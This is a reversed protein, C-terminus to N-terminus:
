PASSDNTVPVNAPTAGTALTSPRVMPEPSRPGAVSRSCDRYRSRTSRSHAPHVRPCRRHPDGHPRPGPVDRGRHHACPLVAAIGRHPVLREVGAIEVRRADVVRQVRLHDRRAFGIPPPDDLSQRPVHGVSMGDEKLLVHRVVQQWQDVPSPHVRDDVAEEDAIGAFDECRIRAHARRHRHLVHTHQLLRFDEIEDFRAASVRRQHEIRAVHQLVRAPHQAEQAGLRTDLEGVPHQRPRRSRARAVPYPRRVPVVRHVSRAPELGPDGPVVRKRLM